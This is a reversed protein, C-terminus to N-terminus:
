LFDISGDNEQKYNVPFFFSVHQLQTRGYNSNETRMLNLNKENTVKILIVLITKVYKGM